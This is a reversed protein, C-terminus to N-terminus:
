SSIFSAAPAINRNTELGRAARNQGMEFPAYDDLLGAGLMFKLAGDMRTEQRKPPFCYTGALRGGADAGGRTTQGGCAGSPAAAPDGFCPDLGRFGAVWLPVAKRGPGKRAWGRTRDRMGKSLGSRGGCGSGESYVVRAGHWVGYGLEDAAPLDVGLGLPGAGLGV